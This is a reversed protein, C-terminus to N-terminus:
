LKFEIPVEVSPKTPTRFKWRRLADIAIKDLGASGTTKKASVSSVLGTKQDINVTFIGSGTPWKSKPLARYEVPPYDPRPAYYAFAKPYNQAHSREPCFLTLLAFLILYRSM